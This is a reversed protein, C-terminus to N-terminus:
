KHNMSKQSKPLYITITIYMIVCETHNKKISIYIQLKKM